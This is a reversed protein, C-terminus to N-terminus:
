AVLWTLLCALYGTPIYLCKIVAALTSDGGGRPTEIKISWWLCHRILKSVVGV